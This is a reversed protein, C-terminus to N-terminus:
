KIRECSVFYRSSSLRQQSISNSIICKSDGFLCYRPNRTGVVNSVVPGSHIGVRISIHGKDPDDEDVLIEKAAKIANKAFHVLRKMHDPQDSSLNTVAM